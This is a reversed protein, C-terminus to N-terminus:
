IRVIGTTYNELFSLIKDEHEGSLADFRIGCRRCIFNRSFLPSPSFTNVPVDYVVDCPLDTLHFGNRSIFIDIKDRSFSENPSDNYSIYEFATGGLSIDKINGVKIFGNGLSVYANDKVLFRKHKRM